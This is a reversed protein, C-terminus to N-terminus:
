DQAAEKDKGNIVEKIGSYVWFGVLCVVACTTWIAGTASDDQSFPILAILLYALTAFLLLKETRDM